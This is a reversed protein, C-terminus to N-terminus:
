GFVPWRSKRFSEYLAPDAKDDIRAFHKRHLDERLFVADCQWFAGDYYCPEALDFLRFGAAQVAAVRESITDATCELIVISCRPLTKKAGALVRLEEGDVDIKLVFPEPLDRGNLFGDLTVAPVKRMVGGRRAEPTVMGAQTLVGSGPETHIEIEVEGARDSVAVTVIQHTLTRYTESIAESLESVPEFLIHPLAPFARILEPTGNLVGVDLVCGAPIGRRVLHNLAEQKLPARRSM